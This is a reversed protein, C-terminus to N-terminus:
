PAINRSHENVGVCSDLLAPVWSCFAIRGTAFNCFPSPLICCVRSLLRAKVNAAPLGAKQLELFSDHSMGNDKNISARIKVQESAHM